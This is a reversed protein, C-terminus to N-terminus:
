PLSTSNEDYHYSRHKHPLIRNGEISHEKGILDIQKVRMGHTDYETIAKIDGNKGITAYIRGPTMTEMPTKISAKEDNQVIIAAMHNERLISDLVQGGAM